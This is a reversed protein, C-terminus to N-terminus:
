KFSLMFSRTKETGSSSRLVVDYKGEQLQKAPVSLSVIRGEPGDVPKIGSMKILIKGANNVTIDFADGDNPSVPVKINLIRTERSVEVNAPMNIGGRSTALFVTAITPTPPLASNAGANKHRAEILQQRLNDVEGQLASLSESDEGRQEALKSDLETERQALRENLSSESNALSNRAVLLENRTRWGDFLLWATSLGLVVFAVAAAYQMAPISFGFGGFIKEFWGATQAQPM